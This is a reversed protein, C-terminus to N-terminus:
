HAFRDVFNPFQEIFSHVPPHFRTTSLSIFVVTFKSHNHYNLRKKGEKKENWTKGRRVLTECGIGLWVIEDLKKEQIGSSTEIGSHAGTLHASATKVHEVGDEEPARLVMMWPSASRFDM